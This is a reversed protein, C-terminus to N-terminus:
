EEAPATADKKISPKTASEKDIYALVAMGKPTLRYRQWKAGGVKEIAAMGHVELKPYVNYFLLQARPQMGVNNTIGTIMPGRLSTLISFLSLSQSTSDDSFVSTEIKISILLNVLEALEEDPWEAHPKAKRATRSLEKIEGKLETNQKRL